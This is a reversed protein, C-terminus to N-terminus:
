AGALQTGGRISRLIGEAREMLLLAKAGIELKKRNHELADDTENRSIDEVLSTFARLINNSDKVARSSLSAAVATLRLPARVTTTGASVAYSMAVLSAATASGATVSATTLLAGAAAIPLGVGTVAAMATATSGVTGVVGTAITAAKGASWLGRSLLGGTIGTAASAASFGASTLGLASSAVSSVADIRTQQRILGAGLSGTKMAVFLRWSPPPTARANDMALAEEMTDPVYDAPLFTGDEFMEDRLLIRAKTMESSRRAAERKATRRAQAQKGKLHKVVKKPVKKTEELVQATWGRALRELDDFARKLTFVFATTSGSVRQRPTRMRRFERVFSQVAQGAIFAPLNNM